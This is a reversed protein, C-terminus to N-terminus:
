RRLVVSNEKAVLAESALQENMDVTSDLVQSLIRTPPTDYDSIRDVHTVRNLTQVEVPPLVRIV